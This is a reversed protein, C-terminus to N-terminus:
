RVANPLELPNIDQREAGVGRRGILAYWAAPGPSSTFDELNNNADTKAGVITEPEIRVYVKAYGNYSARFRVGAMNFARRDDMILNGVEDYVFLDLDKVYADGGVLFVYDVGKSVPVIFRQVGGSAELLTGTYGSPAMAFGRQTYKIAMRYAIDEAARQDAQLSGTTLVFAFACAAAAISKIRM